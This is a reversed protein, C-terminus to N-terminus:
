FAHIVEVQGCGSPCPCTLTVWGVGVGMAFLNAKLFVPVFARLSSLLTNEGSYPSPVFHWLPHLPCVDGM